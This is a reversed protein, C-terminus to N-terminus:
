KSPGGTFARAMRELEESVERLLRHHQDAIIAHCGEIDSVPALLPPLQDTMIEIKTRIMAGLAAGAHVVEETSCLKGVAQEFDVRARQADYHAKIAKSKTLSTVVLSDAKSDGQSGSEAGSDENRKQRSQAHREGVDTRNVDATATLLKESEEVDVKGDVMVLREDAKLQTVYSRAWGKLRAFEAQSVLTM